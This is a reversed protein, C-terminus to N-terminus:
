LGDSCFADPQHWCTSKICVTIIHTHLVGWFRRRRDGSVGLKEIDWRTWSLLLGDQILDGVTGKACIAVAEAAVVSQNFGIQTPFCQILYIYKYIGSTLQHFMSDGRFPPAGRVSMLPSDVCFMLMSMSVNLLRCSSTTFTLTFVSM